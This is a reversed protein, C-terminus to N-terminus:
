TAASSISAACRSPAIGRVIMPNLSDFTGLNGWILRGGKPADPNFWPLHDFNAPQAPKGHMAIAYSEAASCPAGLALAMLVLVIRTAGGESTCRFALM